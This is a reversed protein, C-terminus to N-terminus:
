YNVVKKNLKADFFINGKVKYKGKAKDTFTIRVNGGGTTATASNPTITAKAVIDGKEDTLDFSLPNTTAQSLDVEKPITIDFYDGSQLIKTGRTEYNFELRITASKNIETAPSGSDTLIKLDTIRADVLTGNAFVEIPIASFVTSLTLLLSAFIGIWKKKKVFFIM